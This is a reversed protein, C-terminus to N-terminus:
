GDLSPAPPFLGAVAAVIMARRHRLSSPDRRDVAPGLLDRGCAGTLAIQHVLVVIDVPDWDPDLHGADQARRVQEAGRQMARRVGDGFPDDGTRGRAAELIAFRILRLRDPHAAFYDHLRGAYGALDDADPRTVQAVAALEREAVCRYLLDKTRFYSYLRAKSSRARAAIRDVRAGALGYEAFEDTAAALIRERVTGDASGVVLDGPAQRDGVSRM